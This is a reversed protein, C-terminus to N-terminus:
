HQAESWGCLCKSLFYVHLRSLPGYESLECILNTIQGRHLGIATWPPLVLAISLVVPIQVFCLQQLRHSRACSDCIDVSLENSIRQVNAHEFACAPDKIFCCLLFTICKILDNYSVDIWLSLAM